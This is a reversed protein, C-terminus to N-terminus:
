AKSAYELAKEYKEACANIEYLEEVDQRTKSGMKAANQPYDAFEKMRYAFADAKGIKVTYGTVGNLIIESSGETDTAITPVGCAMAEVTSVGFIEKRSTNLLATMKNIEDPIQDHPLQGKFEIEEQLNLDACKQKLRGELSGSGIIVLKTKAQTKLKMACYADILTDIDSYAELAKICGFVCVGEEKEVDKKDFAYLDVGPPAVFVQKEKKFLASVRQMGVASPSCVAAAAKIAKLVPRKAESEAAYLDPGTVTLLLKGCKTQATLFGYTHAELANVVDFNGAALLSKLEKANKKVGGDAISVGLYQISVGPNFELKEPKHEPFSFVSITNGKKELINAWKVTHPSNAAAVLAIKM